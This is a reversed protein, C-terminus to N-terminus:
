APCKVLSGPNIEFSPLAIRVSTFVLNERLVNGAPFDIVPLNDFPSGVNVTPLAAIADVVEMSQGGGQGDDGDLISTKLMKYLQFYLPTLPPGALDSM